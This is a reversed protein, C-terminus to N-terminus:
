YVQEITVRRNPALCKILETKPLKGPCQVVPKRGGVGGTELQLNRNKSLLYRNVAEARRISLQDNAKPDGMNDTHGEIKYRTLPFLSGSKLLADLAKLGAPALKDDGSAFLTDGKLSITQLNAAGKVKKAEGRIEKAALPNATAFVVVLLIALLCKGSHKM